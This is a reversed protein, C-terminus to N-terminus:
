DNNAIRTILNHFRLHTVIINLFYNIFFLIISLSISLIYKNTLHLMVLSSLISISLSIILLYRYKFNIDLSNNTSDFIIIGKTISSLMNSYEESRRWPTLDSYFIISNGNIQINKAGFRILELEIQKIISNKSIKLNYQM